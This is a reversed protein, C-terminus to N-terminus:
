DGVDPTEAGKPDPPPPPPLPPQGAPQPNEATPDPPPSPPLPPQNTTEMAYNRSQPYQDILYHVAVHHWSTVYGVFNAPRATELLM